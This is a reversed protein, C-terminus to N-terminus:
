VWGAGQPQQWDIGFPALRVQARLSPTAITVFGKEQTVTADRAYTALVGGRTRGEWPIDGEIGSAIAWTRPERLGEPPHGLVRGLGNELLTLECRWGRELAFVARADAAEVLKATRLAQM